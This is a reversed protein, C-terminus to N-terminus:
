IDHLQEEFILENFWLILISAHQIIKFTATRQSCVHENKLKLLCLMSAIAANCNAFQLVIPRQIVFSKTETSEAPIFFM